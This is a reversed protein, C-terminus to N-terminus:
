AFLAFVRSHRFLRVELLAQVAWISPWGKAVRYNARAEKSVAPFVSTAAVKKV